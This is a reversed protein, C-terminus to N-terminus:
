GLRLYVCADIVILPVKNQMFCILIDIPQTCTTQRVSRQGCVAIHSKCRQLNTSAKAAMASSIPKHQSYNNGM